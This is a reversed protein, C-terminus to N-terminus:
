PFPCATKLYAIRKLVAYDFSRCSYIYSGNVIFVMMTIILIKHSKKTVAGVIFTLTNHLVKLLGEFLETFSCFLSIVYCM